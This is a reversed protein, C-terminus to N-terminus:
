VIIFGEYTSQVVTNTTSSYAALSYTKKKVLKLSVGIDVGNKTFRVKGKKVKACIISFKAYTPLGEVYQDTEGNKICYVIGANGYWCSRDEGTQGSYWYSIIM